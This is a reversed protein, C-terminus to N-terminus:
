YAVIGDDNLQAVEMVMVKDRYVEGEWGDATRVALVLTIQGYEDVVTETPVDCFAFCDAGM